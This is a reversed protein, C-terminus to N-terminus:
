TEPSVWKKRAQRANKRVAEPSVGRSDAWEAPTYGLEETAWYDLM